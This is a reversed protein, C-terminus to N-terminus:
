RSFYFSFSLLIHYCMFLNFLLVDNMWKWNFPLNMRNRFEPIYFLFQIGYKILHTLLRHTSLTWVVSNMGYRMCWMNVVKGFQWKWKFCAVSHNTFSIIQWNLDNLWWLWWWIFHIFLFLEVNLNSEVVSISSNRVSPVFNLKKKRLWDIFCQYIQFYSFDIQHGANRHHNLM